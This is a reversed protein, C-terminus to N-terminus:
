RFHLTRLMQDMAPQADRQESQPTIFVIYFLGEPRMTTVVSDVETENQYPSKSFLTTQLGPQGGVNVDHQERIQMGPNQARLQSVLANTDRRLELENGEPFYYSITAGYGIQAAGNETQFIADRPAITVPPSQPDGFTEWNAPVSLTYANTSYQRFSTAPRIDPPAEPHEDRFNSRLQGRAPLHLVLDKTHQFQGSDTTYQRQPLQRVINEVARVRNGPNPHDSLFQSLAGQRGAQAELKEFFRAM